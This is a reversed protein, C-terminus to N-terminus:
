DDKLARKCLAPMKMEELFVNCEYISHGRLKTLCKLYARHLRTEGLKHGTIELLKQGYELGLDFGICIAM